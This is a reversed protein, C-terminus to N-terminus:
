HISAPVGVMVKKLHHILGEKNDVPRTGDSKVLPACISEDQYRITIKGVINRTIIAYLKGTEEDSIEVIRAAYKNSQLHGICHQVAKQPSSSRNIKRIERGFYYTTVVNRTKM